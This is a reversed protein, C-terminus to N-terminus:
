WLYDDEFGNGINWHEDEIVEVKENQLNFRQIVIDKLNPTDKIWDGVMIQYENKNVNYFVRGRPTDMYNGNMGNDQWIEKHLKDSTKIGNGPDYAKETLLTDVLFLNKNKIDYYFSGVKPKNKNQLQSEMRKMIINRDKITWKNM